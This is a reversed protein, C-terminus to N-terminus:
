EGGADFAQQRRPRHDRVLCTRGAGRPCQCRSGIVAAHDVKGTAAQERERDVDLGARLIIFDAIGDDRLDGASREIVENSNTDYECM